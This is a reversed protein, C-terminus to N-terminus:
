LIQNFSFVIYEEEEAERNTAEDANRLTTVKEEGVEPLPAPRVAKVRMVEVEVEVEIRLKAVSAAL